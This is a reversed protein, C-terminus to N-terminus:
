LRHEARTEPKWSLMAKMQADSITKRVRQEVKLQKMKLVPIHGKEHLWSLFSNIARISINCTVPSLGNQRMGVIFRSLLEDTPLQSADTYKEYRKFIQGYQHLTRESLNALFRKETIFLDFLSRLGNIM